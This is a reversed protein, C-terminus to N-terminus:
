VRVNPFDIVKNGSKCCGFCNDKGKFFDGYHKKGCKGCTTKQTPSSTSKEKKTKPYSVRDDRAKPFKSFVHNSMRKKFRPNDQIELKSKSYGGDFSRAKKPDRIKRKARAEEM